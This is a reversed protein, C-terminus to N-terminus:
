RTTSQPRRISSSVELWSASDHVQPPLATANGYIPIEFNLVGSSVAASLRQCSRGMSSSASVTEILRVQHEPNGLFRGIDNFENNHNGLALHTVTVILMIQAATMSHVM